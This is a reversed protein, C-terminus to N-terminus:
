QVTIQSNVALSPILTANKDYIGLDPDVNTDLLLTIDFTGSQLAKFVIKAVNGSGSVAASAPFIGLIIDVTGQVNDKKFELQNVSGGNQTLFADERGLDTVMFKTNDFQVQAGFTALDTMNAASLYVTVLDNVAVTAKDATLLIAPVLYQDLNINIDGTKDTVNIVSQGNLVALGDKYVSIVFTRSPGAPVDVTGSAVGDTITLEQEVSDMGIGIIKLMAKTANILPLPVQVNLSKTINKLIISINVKKDAEVNSTSSGSLVAVTDQYAIVTFTRDNGPKVEISGTAMSDKITLKASVKQIDAATVEVFVANIIFEVKTADPLKVNLKITIPKDDDDNSFISSCGSLGVVLAVALVLFKHYFKM